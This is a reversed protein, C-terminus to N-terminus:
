IQTILDADNHIDLHSVRNFDIVRAKDGDYHLTTVSANQIYWINDVVVSFPHSQVSGLVTAVIGGSTFLVAHGGHGVAQHAAAIANMGRSSFQAWSEVGNLKGHPADRWRELIGHYDTLTLADASDSSAGEGFERDVDTHAYENLDPLTSVSLTSLEAHELTLQATHQQRELTGAFAADPTVGIKKWWDGLFRAQVIGRESLRDYNDTGASAQGHRVLTIISM